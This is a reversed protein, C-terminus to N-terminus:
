LRRPRNRQLHKRLRLRHEGRGQASGTTQTALSTIEECATRMATADGVNALPADSALGDQDFITAKASNNNWQVCLNWDERCNYAPMCTAGATSRQAMSGRGSGFYQCVMLNSTDAGARYTGCKAPCLALSGKNLMADAVCQEHVKCKTADQSFAVTASGALLAVVFARRASRMTSSPMDRRTHHADRQKSTFFRRPEM